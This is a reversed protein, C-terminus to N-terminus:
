IYFFNVDLATTPATNGGASTMVAAASWGANTFEIGMPNVVNAASGAPVGIVMAPNTTGVTVSAAATNYIIVWCAVTNPNYIYWGFLQGASAKIAQASNTLATSGDGSTCNKILLGGSTTPKQTVYLPNSSSVASGGQYCEAQAKLNTATSQRVFVDGDAGKVDVKGATSFATGLTGLLNGDLGFKATYTTSNSTLLNGAGDATRTVGLVKTTEAALVVGLNNNADVNAGRTNGAADMLVTRTRGKSDLQIGVSQGTTPSPETSNYIGLGLIGNAPATAATNVGDFIAGANGLNRVTGIVKTTEADLTAAVKMNAATGSVATVTDSSTLARIQTPDLATGDNKYVTVDLPQRTASAATSTIGAGTSTSKTISRIGTVQTGDTQTASLALASTNLNTGANATISGDVTLSGSNDTVPIADVHKVYLEGANTGRAAVNDGDTTTLSGGRADDRVLNLATGVPNAAAVADETYQTGGGFSSIQDGNADVIATAQPNSNTLDLVTAKITANAGDLVAGDAGSITGAVLNVRLANNVTDAVALKVWNSGDWYLNGRYKIYPFVAPDVSMLDLESPTLDVVEPNAM